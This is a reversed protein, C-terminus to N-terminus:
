DEYFAAWDYNQAGGATRQMTVQVGFRNPELEINKLPITQVGAFIVEDKQILNGGSIIRYYVRVVVTEAATQHTFDIQVKRPEFVGMPTENRYVDQVAGTTTITGGTEKLTFFANVLVFVLDLKTMLSTLGGIVGFKAQYPIQFDAGVAGPPITVVCGWINYRILDGDQWSVAPFNYSYNAYGPNELMPTGAVINVWGADVTHRYRDISITAGAYEIAPIVAGDPRLNHIELRAVEISPQGVQPQENVSMLAQIYPWSYGCQDGIIIYDVIGPVATFPYNPDITFVGTGPGGGGVAWDIIRRPQFRDAGETPMLLCGNFYDNVELRLNDEPITASSLTLTGFGLIEIAMISEHFVCVLDNAEVPATFPDVIFTGTAGAYDLVRRIEREPAVGPNNFNHIVQIWFENNFLDNNFGALNTLVLTNASAGMGPDCMGFMWLGVSPAPPGPPVGGAGPILSLICFRVSATIQQAVGLANTFAAAVTLTNGIHSSIQRVQGAAPGDLIKVALGAYSPENALGNCVLTTGLPSGNATSIDWYTIHAQLLPFAPNDIRLGSQPIKM